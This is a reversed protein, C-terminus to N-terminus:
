GKAMPLVIKEPREREHDAPLLAIGPRYKRSQESYSLGSFDFLQQRVSDGGLLLGNKQEVALRFVRYGLAINYEALPVGAFVYMNHLAGKDFFNEMFGVINQMDKSNNYLNTTLEIFDDIFLYYEPYQLMKEFMEDDPIGQGRLARKLGNREIMEQFLGRAFGSLDEETGVYQAGVEEAMAALGSRSSDIVAIRGKRDYAAQMLCRLANSKGTRAQGAVLYTFCHRLDISCIDADEAVYGLPLRDTTKLLAMYDENERLLAWTPKAPIEPIPRAPKGNFAANMKEFIVSMKEARQYDDDAPLSLATQFELATGQIMALGRGAIDPEPIVEVRTRLTDGYKLRDGMQLSFVTKINEGIRNQIEAVGFGGAAIVLFLGYNTGERSLEILIDEYRNDTKEKFNAFGDIVLLLAPECPGHIRVYQGYNGGGFLKKRRELERSMMSLLKGTREAQDEFAIGGCHKLAKFCGLMRSSYDLIYFNVCNPAYRNVLSYLLTQLFTSKGSVVMGCVAVHGNTAFNVEVPMQAQNVPDDYLGVMAHLEWDRGPADERWSDVFRYQEFEAIDSLYLMSPLVPLWLTLNAQMGSQEAQEKLYEVVAALQTKEKIEPLKVGSFASQKLLMSLLLEKERVGNKSVLLLLKMFDELRRANYQSMPYEYGQEALRRFVAAVVRTKEGEERLIAALPKGQEAASALVCEYVEDLWRRRKEEKRKLKSRNGVLGPQGTKTLMIAVEAKAYAIDADYAAGSWGSQFLDFIEDNGVQLYCRGAQTIYAADPKKLMDMSDQRDQVRLCLRFKSNSWINDDVTGAPKQTALILHIGLSRGVQAVSILERMFDPEERKLEAFEDIVIVMHPIPVGAEGNKLLRTYQDLHNVDYEGFLRQRRKIESKISVMARRVQNGSLNSIQGLMHPLDSFLNAMVAGKYDIIFFGVDLPSFNLALSLIYTQLTESKGSGTTGAVLGHPGHYKEHIDLYLNVNGAKRGVLARMNEYTRNKRWRDQVNLESLSQVDYMDFFSISNPLEGGNELENVRIGSLWRAFHEAEGPLVEDFDVARKKADVTSVDYFGHFQGDRQILNICSNPLAEYGHAILVTSVGLEPSPELLYKATPEDELLDPNCVFIVYHPRPIGQKNDKEARIRLNSGLAYLVDNVENKDTAVYRVKKDESWVHPLWKAFSLDREYQKEYLFVMKVDTYCNNAAIQIAMSRAIAIGESLSGDGYIGWLQNAKLDIGVPVNRLTSFSEYIQRPKESLSDDVLTFREKPVQIPVQFPMSGMGLRVFLFDSHTFNRSWLRTPDPGYHLCAESSPYRDNLKEANERYQSNLEDTIKVLYDRYANFRLLEEEKVQKKAYRMNLLAWMVGILASSVATIIGTYMFASTGVGSSNASVIAMGSGLLMPLMMTFAPGITLLLPQKKPKNPPPPGEIEMPEEHLDEVVRPARKFYADESVPQKEGAIPFRFPRFTSPEIDVPRGGAYIALVEGLYILKLGLIDVTDGFVLRRSGQIRQGDVYVGNTSYDTLRMADGERSFVAHRKSVLGRFDYRIHCEPNKGVAIEQMHSIDFKKFCPLGETEGTVILAVQEEKSGVSLTLGDQLCIEDKEGDRGFLTYEKGSLVKWAGSIVELQLVIDDNLGFRVAPLMIEYDADNLAPLRFEQYAGNAYVMIVFRM